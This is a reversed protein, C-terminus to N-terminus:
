PLSYTGTVFAVVEGDSDMIKVEMVSLRKGMKIIECVGKFTQSGSRKLFHINLQSTFSMKLKEGGRGLLSAYMAADALTMLFPGSISGGARLWKDSARFSVVAGDPGQELVQFGLESSFPITSNILDQIQTTEM